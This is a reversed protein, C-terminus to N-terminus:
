KNCLYKELANKRENSSYKPELKRKIKHKKTNKHNLNFIYNYTKSTKKNMIFAQRSILRSKVKFLTKVYFCSTFDEVKLNTYSRSVLVGTDIIPFVIGSDKLWSAQINAVTLDVNYKYLPLSSIPESLLAFWDSNGGFFSCNIVDTINEIQLSGTYVKFGSNDIIECAVNQYISKISDPFPFGLLKLNNSTKSLEFSYSFEGNATSIEEFLKIQSEIEITDDFDLYEGNVKIMM